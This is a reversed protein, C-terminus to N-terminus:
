QRGSVAAVRCGGHRLLIFWTHLDLLLHIYTQIWHFHTLYGRQKLTM